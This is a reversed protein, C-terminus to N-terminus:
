WWAEEAISEILYCCAYCVRFLDAECSNVDVEM